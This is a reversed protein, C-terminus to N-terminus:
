SSAGDLFFCLFCPLFCLCRFAMLLTQNVNTLRAKTPARSSSSSCSSNPCYIPCLPCADKHPVLIPYVSANYSSISPSTTLANHVANVNIDFKYANGIRRTELEFAEEADRTCLCAHRLALINRTESLQNSNAASCTRIGEEAVCNGYSWAASNVDIGFSSLALIEDSM